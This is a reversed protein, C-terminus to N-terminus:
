DKQKKPQTRAKETQTSLQSSINELIKKFQAGKHLTKIMQSYQTRVPIELDAKGKDKSQIALASSSSTAQDKEEKEM